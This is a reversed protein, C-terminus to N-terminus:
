GPGGLRRGTWRAKNGSGWICRPWAANTPGTETVGCTECPCFTGSRRRCPRWGRTVEPGCLGACQKVTITSTGTLQSLYLYTFHGSRDRYELTLQLVGYLFKSQMGVSRTSLLDAPIAPKSVKRGTLPLRPPQNDGSMPDADPPPPQMSRQGHLPLFGYCAVGSLPRMQIRRKKRPQREADCPFRLRIGHGFSRAPGPTATKPCFLRTRSRSLSPNQLGNAM